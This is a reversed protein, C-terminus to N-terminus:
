ATTTRSNEDIEERVIKVNPLAEFGLRTFSKSKVLLTLIKVGDQYINIREGNKRGLILM